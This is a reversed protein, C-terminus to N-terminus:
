QPGSNAFQATSWEALAPQLGETFGQADKVNPLNLHLNDVHMSNSTSSTTASYQNGINNLAAASAAGIPIQHAGPSIGMRGTIMSHSSSGRWPGWGGRAIENLAFDVQQRWTKNTKASLGTAATFADGEGANPYRKSIGGYHLQFPGFSSNDDGGGVWNPNFGGEGGAVKLAYDPNIGRAIAAKRIYDQVEGSGSAAGLPGVGSGGLAKGIGGLVRAAAGALGGGTDGGSSSSGGTLWDWFSGGAAGEQVLRVPLPNGASVEQGGVKFPTPTGTIAALDSDSLTVEQAAGGEVPLDAENSRNNRFPFNPDNAAAGSTKGGFGLWGGSISSLWNEFRVFGGVQGAAGTAAGSAVGQTGGHSAKNLIDVLDQAHKLASAIPADIHEAISNGWADVHQFFEAWAAQLDRAAKIQADTPTLGKLLNEQGTLSAGYKVMALNAGESLGLQQAFFHEQAADVAAYAKLIPALTALYREPSSFDVSGGVRATMRSIAEPVGKGLAFEQVANNAAEFAAKADEASGGIRQILMGFESIRQPNAGLTTAFRGLAANSDNIDSIFEKFGRGGLMVAYLGLVVASVKEIAAGINKGSQEIDKGHKTLQDKTKKFNDDIDRTGKKFGSPDLNLSVVLSDIVTAM